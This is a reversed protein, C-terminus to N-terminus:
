VIIKKDKLLQVLGDWQDCRYWQKEFSRGGFSVVDQVEYWDDDLQLIWTSRTYRRGTIPNTYADNCYATNHGYERMVRWGQDNQRYVWRRTVNSNIYDVKDKPFDVLRDSSPMGANKLVRKFNELSSITYYGEKEPVDM